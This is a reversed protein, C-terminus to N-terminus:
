PHTLSPPIFGEPEAFPFQVLMGGQTGSYYIARVFELAKRGAVGDIKVPRNAMIDAYFEDIQTKHSVGWYSKGIVEQNGEAYVVREPQGQIRIVATDKELRAVGNKGHIELLVDADYTFFNCAYLSGVAGNQFFVTAEAVDEVHIIDHTRNDMSGELSKIPGMIWQMLDMTHIAQDILVGGGEMDWTGKWDSKSYYEDNRMWTVFLRGGLIEGLEGSVVAEKMARSSPNYRNQFIVGLTINNDQAAQIMRDADHLTVAMPKETLVHIGKNAAAIAIEAHVHHPTCIHIVDPELALVQHYDTYYPVGFETSAKKARDEKIDCVAILKASPNSAAAALHVKSVNGCGVIAVKLQKM